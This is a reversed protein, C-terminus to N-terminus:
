GCGTAGALANTSTPEIVDVSVPVLPVESFTGLAEGSKLFTLNLSTMTESSFVFYYANVSMHYRSQFGKVTHECMTFHYDMDLCKFLIKEQHLRTFDHQILTNLYSEDLNGYIINNLIGNRFMKNGILSNIILKM